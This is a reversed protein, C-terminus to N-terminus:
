VRQLCNGSACLQMMVDLSEIGVCLQWSSLRPRGQCPFPQAEPPWAAVESSALTQWFVGLELLVPPWVISDQSRGISGRVPDCTAFRWKAGRSIKYHIELSSRFHYVKVLQQSHPPATVISTCIIALSSSTHDTSKSSLSFQFFLQHIIIIM